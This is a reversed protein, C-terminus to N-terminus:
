GMGWLVWGLALGALFDGILVLAMVVITKWFWSMKDDGVDVLYEGM